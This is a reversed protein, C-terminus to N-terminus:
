LYDELRIDHGLSQYLIVLEKKVELLLPNLLLFNSVAKDAYRMEHEIGNERNEIGNGGVEITHILAEIRDLAKIYKSEPTRQEEYEKWIEYVDERGFKQRLHDIAERELDDKDQKSKRGITVDYSDFDQDLRYECIDHVLAIKLSHYVDIQLYLREAVDVALLALKWSHDATSDGIDRPCASYRKTRKLKNIEIHFKLLNKVDM